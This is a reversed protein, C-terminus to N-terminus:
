CSFQQPYKSYGYQVYNKNNLEKAIHIVEDSIDSSKRVFYYNYSGGPRRIIAALKYNHSIAYNHLKTTMEGWGLGWGDSTCSPPLPTGGGGAHFMIVTPDFREIYSISLGNHAIYENNLGGADIADWGSYYPLAGAESVLLTHNSGSYESLEKAIIKEDNHPNNGYGSSPLLLIPQIIMPVSILIVLVVTAYKRMRNRSMVNSVYDNFISLAQDIGFPLLLFGFILYIYQFRFAVNQSQTIFTYLIFHVAIPVGLFSVKRVRSQKQLIRLMGFSALLLLLINGESFVEFSNVISGLSILSGDTKIYFPNPFIYGFYLYRTIHYITFPLGITILLKLSLYKDRTWFLILGVLTLSLIAGEPRILGFLVSSIVFIAQIPTSNPSRIVALAGFSAVLYVAGFAVTSFGTLTHIPLYTVAAIIPPLVVSVFQSGNKCSWFSIIYLIGIGAVISGLRALLLIDVNVIPGLALYVMWLFATAGEVPGLGTHYKIGLGEGLHESYTFLILADEAAGISDWYKIVILLFIISAVLFSGIQYRKSKM